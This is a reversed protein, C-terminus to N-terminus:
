ALSTQRKRGAFDHLPATRKSGRSKAAPTSAEIGFLRQPNVGFQVRTGWCSHQARM